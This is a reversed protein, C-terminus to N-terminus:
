KQLKDSGPSLRIGKLNHLRGGKSHCENCALANEKPAVMHNLPWTMETRIFDVKGSFPAGVSAMGATIAKEWNFNKWYSAEDTGTTHPIVLTKNVPDYPQVGRFVKVPWIVSKGDNPSGEFRNIQVIGDAKDVKDGLLTYRIKGNFWVYEPMVNEGVTFDGEKSDYIVRGKANKKQMLKGDPGKQGATSWDWTMLTAVDGRAMAPIHCVQCALKNAHKNLVAVKAEHPENGHCAQCTGPNTNDVKGRMHRGGRDAATPVYRSGPVQHGTTMHCTACTFDAGTADMHVDLKRDPAALSSDMDGHKVGDGAGGFFHCTGCTDRSTKGVNQAVKQLDVPKVIKGSGPPLEMEKYAPHGALGAPKRYSGTTDHCVLCDVNAQSSFDFKEDKWGYGVHCSTCVAYNSAAAVCFNNIVYRKGLRQGSQPNIFAWSWHQTRQIQKAAETHCSLCAKTVEPGSKFEQQLAQMSSHDVSKAATAPEAVADLAALLAVLLVIHWHVAPTKM